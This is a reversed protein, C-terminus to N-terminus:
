LSSFGPIELAPAILLPNSATEPARALAVLAAVVAAAGAARLSWRTWWALQRHRQLAMARSAIRQAFGFPATEDMSSPRVTVSRRRAAALKEWANPLNSESKM